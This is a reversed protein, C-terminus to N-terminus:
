LIHISAKAQSVMEKNRRFSEPNSSSPLTAAVQWSKDTTHERKSSNILPNCWLVAEQSITTIRTASAPVLNPRHITATASIKASRLWRMRMPKLAPPRNQRASVSITKSQRSTSRTGRVFFWSNITCNTKSSCKWKQTFYYLEIRVSQRRILIEIQIIM